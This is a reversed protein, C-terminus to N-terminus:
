SHLFDSSIDESHGERTRAQGPPRGDQAQSAALLKLLHHVVAKGQQQRPKFLELFRDLKQM